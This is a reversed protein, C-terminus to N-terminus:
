GWRLPGEGEFVTRSFLPFWLSPSGSGPCPRPSSTYAVERNCSSFEAAMGVLSEFIKTQSLKGQIPISIFHDLNRVALDCCEKKKLVREKKSAKRRAYQVM